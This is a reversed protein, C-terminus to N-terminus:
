LTLPTLPRRTSRASRGPRGRQRGSLIDPDAHGAGPAPRVRNGPILVAMACPLVGGLPQSCGRLDTKDLRRDITSHCKSRGSTTSWYVAIRLSSIAAGFYRRETDQLM